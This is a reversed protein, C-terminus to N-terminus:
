ARIAFSPIAPLGPILGACHANAGALLLRRVGENGYVVPITPEPHVIAVRYGLARHRGNYEEECKGFGAAGLLQREDGDRGPLLPELV